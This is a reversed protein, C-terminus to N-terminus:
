LGFICSYNTLFTAKFTTFIVQKSTNFLVGTHLTQSIFVQCEKLGKLFWACAANIQAQVSKSKSKNIM